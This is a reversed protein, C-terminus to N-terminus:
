TTALSTPDPGARIFREVSEDSHEFTGICFNSHSERDLVNSRAFDKRCKPCQDLGYYQSKRPSRDKFPDKSYRLQRLKENGMMIQQTELVLKREPENLEVFSITGRVAELVKEKDVNKFNHLESRMKDVDGLDIWVAFEKHLLHSNRLQYSGIKSSDAEGEHVEEAQIFDGLCRAKIFEANSDFGAKIRTEAFREVEKRTANFGINKKAM